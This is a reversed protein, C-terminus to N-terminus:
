RLSSDSYLFIKLTTFYILQNEKKMTSPRSSLAESKTPKNPLHEVVQAVGDARSKWTEFYRQM